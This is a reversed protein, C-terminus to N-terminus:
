SRGSWGRCAGHRRLGRGRGCAGGNGPPGHGGQGFRTLDDLDPAGDPGDGLDLGLAQEAAGGIVALGLKCSRCVLAQRAEDAEVPGKCAPCALIEVLEPAIM